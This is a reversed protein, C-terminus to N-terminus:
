PAGGERLEEHVQIPVRKKNWLGGPSIRPAHTGSGSRGPSVKMSRGHLKWLAGRIFRLARASRNSRFLLHAGKQLIWRGGPSM